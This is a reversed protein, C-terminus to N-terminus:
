SGTAASAPGEKWLRSRTRSFVFMALATGVPFGLVWCCGIVRSITRGYAKGLRAGKAAYWHAAAIALLFVDVYVLPAADGRHRILASVGFATMTMAIVVYLLFFVRHLRVLGPNLHETEPMNDGLRLMM